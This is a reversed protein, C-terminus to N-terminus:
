WEGRKYKQYEAVAMWVMCVVLPLWMPALMWILKIHEATNMKYGGEAPYVAPETKIKVQM